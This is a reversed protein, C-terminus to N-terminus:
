SMLFYSNCLKIMIFNAAYTTYGIYNLKLILKSTDFSPRCARKFTPRILKSDPATAICLKDIVVYMYVIYM